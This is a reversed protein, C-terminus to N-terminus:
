RAAGPPRPKHSPPPAEPSPAPGLPAAPSQPHPALPPPHSQPDTPLTGPLSNPIKTNQPGTPPHRQTRPRDRPTRPPRQTKPHARPSGKPKPTGHPLHSSEPARRPEKPKLTGPPLGQSGQPRKPDTHCGERQPTGAPVRGGWGEGGGNCAHMSSFMSTTCNRTSLPASTLWASM